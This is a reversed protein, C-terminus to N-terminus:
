RIRRSQSKLDSEDAILIQPKHFKMWPALYRDFTYVAVMRYVLVVFM